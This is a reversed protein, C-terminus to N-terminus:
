QAIADFGEEQEFESGEVYVAVNNPLCIIANSFGQKVCNKGACPSDIIRVKRNEIQIVSIGSSGEIKYIGDKELSYQYERGDAEIRVSNGKIKRSSATLFVAGAVAISLIILDGAKVGAAALKKLIM